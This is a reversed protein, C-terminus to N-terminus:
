RSSLGSKRFGDKTCRLEINIYFLNKHINVKFFIIGIVKKM